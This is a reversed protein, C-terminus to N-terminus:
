WSACMPLARGNTSPMHSRLQSRCGLAVVRREHVVDGVDVVLDVVGSRTRAGLQGRARGLPIELVDAIEAEPQRVPQRLRGLVDGPDHAEDFRQDLAPMRVGDLAVDVEADRAIGVVAPQGPLAGVLHLLALLRVRELLIRAVEREPLRRLRALVGAHSEGHPRPRGPHCM